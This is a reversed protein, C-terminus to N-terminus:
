EKRTSINEWWDLMESAVENAGNKFTPPMDSSGLKQLRRHSDNLWTSPYLTCPIQYYACEWFLNYGAIGALHKISKRMTTIPFIVEHSYDPYINRLFQHNRKESSVIIHSHYTRSSAPTELVVPEFDGKQGLDSITLIRDYPAIDPNRRSIKRICLCNTFDSPKYPRASEWGHECVLPQNTKLSSTAKVNKMWPPIPVKSATHYVDFQIQPLHAALALIRTWHGWGPANAAVQISIEPKNSGEVNEQHM